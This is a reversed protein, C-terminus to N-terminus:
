SDSLSRVRGRVTHRSARRCRWWWLAAAPPGLILLELLVAKLNHIIVAGSLWQQREINLFVSPEAMFHEGSFPLLLPIGAVPGPDFSMWDILLHSGCAVLMLVAMRWPQPQRRWHGAAYALLAVLLAASISHSFTRHFLSHNGILVGPLLDFDALNAALILWWLRRRDGGDTRRQTALYVIAGALSHAVPSAM